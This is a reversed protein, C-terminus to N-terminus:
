YTKDLIAEMNENFEEFSLKQTIHEIEGYTYIDYYYEVCEEYVNIYEYRNDSYDVLSSFQGNGEYM